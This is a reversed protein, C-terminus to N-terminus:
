ANSTIFYFGSMSLSRRIFSAVVAMWWAAPRGGFLVDVDQETV